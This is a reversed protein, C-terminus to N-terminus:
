VYNQIRTSQKARESEGLSNISDSSSMIFDELKTIESLGGLGERVRENRWRSPRTQSKEPNAEAGTSKMGEDQTM